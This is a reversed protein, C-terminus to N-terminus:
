RLGRGLLAVLRLLTGARSPTAGHGLVDGGTRRLAAVTAQGGAVYGAVCPRAWGHLRRVLPTGSALLQAAREIEFNMLRALAESAAPADLASEPVGYATMDQEPLYIRGARRDEAVDQWHELLQLASCVRDSLAVAEPTAQGFEALVIRGVPNASLRCYGLLDDFTRYRHVHQDQLNARILDAFPAMPLRPVVARQLQALVPDPSPEGAWLAPLAAEVRRLRGERDGTASDGLEDVSRAYAYVAHLAERHARPLARLVVPFNEQQERALSSDAETLLSSAEERRDTGATDHRVGRYHIRVPHLTQVRM